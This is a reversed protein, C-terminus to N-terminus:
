TNQHRCGDRSCLNDWVDYFFNQLFDVHKGTWFELRNKNVDTASDFDKLNKNEM